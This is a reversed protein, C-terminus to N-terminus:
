SGTSERFDRSYLASSSGDALSLLNEEEVGSRAGFKKTARQSIHIIQKICINMTFVQM